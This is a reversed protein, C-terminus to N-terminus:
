SIHRLHNRVEDEPPLIYQMTSELRKHRMQKRVEEPSDAVEALSTCLSYRLSYWSIDRDSHDIEAEDMINRLNRGLPGSSYPNGERTLWLADTDDYKPLSERQQLWRRLAKATRETITNNWTQDNKAADHKPIEIEPASLKLWETSAREIEVPRAGIDLTFMIISPWKWCRNVRSWDSKTVQEKPKELRQALEGKIRDREEPTCNNYRKVTKYELVAERILSREDREIPDAVRTGTDGKFLTAPVWDEGSRQSSRFRFFSLLTCVQKNKSSRAYPKGNDKRTKDDRLQELYWDGMEPTIQTTYGHFENWFEPLIRSLRQVYNEATSQSHGETEWDDRSIGQKRMWRYWDSIESIFDIDQRPGLENITETRILERVDFSTDPQSNKAAVTHPKTNSMNSITLKSTEIRFM